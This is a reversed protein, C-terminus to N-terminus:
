EKQESVLLKEELNRIVAEYARQALSACETQSKIIADKAALQKDKAALQKDKEALQKDKEALLTFVLEMDNHDKKVAACILELQSALDPTDM